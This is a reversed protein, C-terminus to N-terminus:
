ADEGETPRAALADFSPGFVAQATMPDETAGLRAYFGAAAAAAPMRAWWVFGGGAARAARAVAACLAAGVGARRHAPAVYLDSLYAGDLAAEVDYTRHWLAVGVLGGLPTEAVEAVLPASPSFLAARAKEPTFAARGGGSGEAKMALILASIEVADREEARRVLRTM